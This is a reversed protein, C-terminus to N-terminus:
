NPLASWISEPIKFGQVHRSCFCAGRLSNGEKRAPERHSSSEGGDTRTSDQDGGVMGVGKEKEEAYLVEDVSHLGAAHASSQFWASRLCLVHSVTPHPVAATHLRRVGVLDDHHHDDHHHDDHHPM